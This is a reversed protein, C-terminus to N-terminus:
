SKMRELEEESPLPSPDQSNKLGDCDLDRARLTGTDPCRMTDKMRDMQTDEGSGGSGAGGEANEGCCNPVYHSGGGARLGFGEESWRETVEGCCSIEADCRHQQNDLDFNTTICYGSHKECECFRQSRLREVPAGITKALREEWGPALKENYSSSIETSSPAEGVLRASLTPEGGWPYAGGMTIMAPCSALTTLTELFLAEFQQILEKVEKTLAEFRQREQADMQHACQYRQTESLGIGGGCEILRSMEGTKGEIQEGVEVIGFYLNFDISIVDLCPNARQLADVLMKEALLSNRARRGHTSGFGKWRSLEVTHGMMESYMFSGFGGRDYGSMVCVPMKGCPCEKGTEESDPCAAWAASMLEPLRWASKEPEPTLAQPESLALTVGSRGECGIAIVQGPSQAMRREADISWAYLLYSGPEAAIEFSGDAAATAQLRASGGLRLLEVIRREGKSAALRTGNRELHGSVTATGPCALPAAADATDPALAASGPTDVGPAAVASGALSVQFTELTMALRQMEDGEVAVLELLILHEGEAADDPLKFEREGSLEEATRLTRDGDWAPAFTWRGDPAVVSLRASAAAPLSVNLRLTEGPAATRRDTRVAFRDRAEPAAAGIAVDVITAAPVEIGQAPTLDVFGGAEVSASVRYRGPPLPVAPTRGSITLTARESQAADTAEAPTVRWRWVKRDGAVLRIGSDIRLLTEQEGVTVPGWAIEGDVGPVKVLRMAYTAAPVEFPNITGKITGAGKGQEDKLEVSLTSGLHDDLRLALAPKALRLATATVRELDRGNTALVNGRGALLAGEEALLGVDSGEIRCDEVWVESEEVSAVGFEAHGSVTSLRVVGRSGGGFRIGGKAFDRVSLGVVSVVAAGDIAIGPSRDGANAAPVIAAGAAARLTLSQTIRLNEPYTGAAIEIVDRPQAADIAAQITPYEAPVSKVAAEAAVPYLLLAAVILRHLPRCPTRARKRL